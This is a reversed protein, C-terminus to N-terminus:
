CPPVYYNDDSSSILALGNLNSTANGNASRLRVDVDLILQVVFKNPFKARNLAARQCGAM